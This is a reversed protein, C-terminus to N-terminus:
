PQPSNIKMRDSRDTMFEVVCEFYHSIFVAVAEAGGAIPRGQRGAPACQMAEGHIQAPAKWQGAPALAVFYKSILIM